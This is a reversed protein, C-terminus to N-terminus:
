RGGEKWGDMGGDRVERGGERNYVCTCINVGNRRIGGRMGGMVEGEERIKGEKEHEKRSKQKKGM